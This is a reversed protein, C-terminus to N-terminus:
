REVPAAARRSELRGRYLPFAACLERVQEAVAALREEDAPAELVDAMWEGIPCVAVVFETSAPGCAVRVTHRGARDFSTRFSRGRAGIPSGGGSWEIEDPGLDPGPWARFELQEGPFCALRKAEARM